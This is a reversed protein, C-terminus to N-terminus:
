EEPDPTFEPPILYFDSANFNSLLTVLLDMVEKHRRAQDDKELCHSELIEAMGVDNRHCRAGFLAANSSLKGKLFDLEEQINELIVGYRRFNENIAM